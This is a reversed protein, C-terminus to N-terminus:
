EKGHGTSTMIQLFSKGKRKSPQHTLGLHQAYPAPNSHIVDRILPWLTSHQVPDNTITKIVARALVDKDQKSLKANGQNLGYHRGVDNFWTKRLRNMNGIGGIMDRGQMRGNVLPLIVAHAHPAAEDLHVDFSLLEGQMNRQVWSLCDQFFPRSDQQHRDIPLSFLIEVAMVANKRPNKIGEESMISKALQAIKLASGEGHLSYNLKIRSADIHGHAGLEAQIERRNHRLEIEIGHKGLIRGLRFFYETNMLYDKM